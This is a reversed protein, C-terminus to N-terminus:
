QQQQQGAAAAAHAADSVLDRAREQVIGPVGLGTNAGLSKLFQATEPFAVFHFSQKSGGAIRYPTRGRFDRADIDAGEKVLLEIMENTGLFAAGHIASFDAENKANIDVGAKILVRVAQEAELSRSGRGAKSIGGAGGGIRGLGAAVMLPTTGDVTTVNPNAGAALLAEIMQVSYFDSAEQSSAAADAAAAAAGDNLRGSRSGAAAAALWIPTAGRLDGTGNTFPEFAGKTPYGIYSTHLATKNIRFNPDAGRALLLKVMELQAGPETSMSSRRIGSVIGGFTGHRRNWDDLWPGAGGIAVHLAPVAGITGNPDAGQEALFRAFAFQGANIAFPLVHTGDASPENVDAGAAILVKAIEIDGNAAAFMLPTTGKTTSVQVKASGEVLVRTVDDHQASVSWMLATAKADKTAANIDARHALLLKVVNVNGTRAATMLPTLGSELAANPDAGANLLKQVMAESSNECARALATVGYDDGQNVKAGARLLLDAMELDDWHAAWLLATAGDARAANVDIKERLLRRVADRDQAAAAQVLRLDADAADAPAGVSLFAVVWLGALMDVKARM